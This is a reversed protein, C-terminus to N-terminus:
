STKWLAHVGAAPLSDALRFRNGPEPVGGTRSDPAGNIDERPLIIRREVAPGSRGPLPAADVQRRGVRGGARAARRLGSGPESGRLGGPRERGVPVEQDTGGRSYRNPSTMRSWLAVGSVVSDRPQGSHRPRRPCTAQRAAAPTPRPQPLRSAQRLISHSHMRCRSPTAPPVQSGHRARQTKGKAAKAATQTNDDGACADSASASAIVAFM